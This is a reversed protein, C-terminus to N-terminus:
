CTSEPSRQGLDLAREPSASVPASGLFSMLTERGLYFSNIKQVKEEEPGEM